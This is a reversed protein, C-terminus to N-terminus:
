VKRNRRPVKPIASKSAISEQLQKSATQALEIERQLLALQTDQRALTLRFAALEEIQTKNTARLEDQKGDAVGLKQRTDALEANSDALEIRLQAENELSSNRLLQLERQAKMTMQREHDIEMLARKENAALREETRRLELRSKELEASYDKRAEALAAELAIQQRGAADLQQELSQTRASEAALNRELQLIREEAERLAERTQNMETQVAVRAQDAAECSQQSNTVREQAEQRFVALGEQAGAQAQSWLSAVLEGAAAKLGDPLDPHEIRVRSKERLDSWFRALAEAPASMSGKRVYQYLKNATPTIGYRFFLITCVERYLDQTDLDNVKLAEIEAIIRAETSM